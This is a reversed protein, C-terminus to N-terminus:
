QPPASPLWEDGQIFNELSYVSVHEGPIQNSWKVRASPNAGPGVNEFEGYFLTSLAFDGSWPLWGEPRILAGLYCHIFVTRSYEKWPRGLYNKHAKPNKLYLTMYDDTGNIVCNQFVFGTSQAPDTRGQASVANNEGKEPSLQRPQVLIQCDQLITASNGFIFDVTGAIRCSKYFQRLSHAYLTDQHGLFECNELISLDSDSRFAVAQHADPGASNVITLDRAMFGDGNVGVTATNYTSVGVMQASLKGTIVTKGMGDGLFVVNRKQLPVRVIEDYVGEKIHIVFRRGGNLIDPAADVASQVTRYCGEGSQCVSVDATLGSPFGGRFSSGVGDGNSSGWFGSRETMPPKWLATDDGFLDYSVIMSLANSTLKTLSDLFAMTDNVRQTTNVYKLASWCDYQYLVAASMWARADKARRPLIGSASSLSIRYQSYGLVELCNQAANSMNPNGSASDLITKAMSQATKLNETSIKISALIIDIPKPPNPLDAQSLGSECSDPFRTAKCAQQIEPSGSVPSQKPNKGSHRADPLQKPDKHYHHPTASSLPLILFLSLFALSILSAMSLLFLRNQFPLKPLLSSIPKIPKRKQM